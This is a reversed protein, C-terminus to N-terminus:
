YGPGKIKVEGGQDWVIDQGPREGVTQRLFLIEEWKRVPALMENLQSSQRPYLVKKGSCENGLDWSVLGQEKEVEWDLGKEGPLKEQGM